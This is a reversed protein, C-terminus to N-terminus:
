YITRGDDTLPTEESGPLLKKPERVSLKRRHQSGRLPGASHSIAILWKYAATEYNESAFSAFSNKLVADSAPM